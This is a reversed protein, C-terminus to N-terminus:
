GALDALGATRPTINVTHRAAQWCGYIPPAVLPEKEEQKTAQWPADLIKKLEAQFPKRTAEPWEATPANLVRLAGELELTAGPPLPPSCKLGPQSIDMRRKGVEPPMDRLDRAELLGVLSEFDGGTGTRFEWHFYVPLKVEPPSQAGLVWAPALGM